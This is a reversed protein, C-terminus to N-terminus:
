SKQQNIDGSKALEMEALKVLTFLADNVPVPIGLQALYAKGLYEPLTGHAPLKAAVSEAMPASGAREEWRRLSLGYNTIRAMARLAREPSRFLPVKHDEFVAFFEPPAAEGGIAGFAVPKVADRMVGHAARAKDVAQQRSGLVIAAVVSGVNPDDLLARTITGLLQPTRILQTGLDIPNDTVAFSPM